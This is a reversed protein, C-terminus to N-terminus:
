KKPTKQMQKVALDLAESNTKALGREKITYMKKRIKIVLSKVDSVTLDSNEAIQRVIEKTIHQNKRIHHKIQSICRAELDEDKVM